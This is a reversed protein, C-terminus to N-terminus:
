FDINMRLREKLVQLLPYQAALSAFHEKHSLQPTQIKEPENLEELRVSYKLMRNRFFSQLHEILEGRENEIFRKQINSTVVITLNHDDVIELRADRFQNVSAHNGNQRLKETFQEWATRLDDDRLPRNEQAQRSSEVLRNRISNLSAL